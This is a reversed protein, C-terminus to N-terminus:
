AKLAALLITCAVGLILISAIYVCVATIARKSNTKLISRGCHYILLCAAILDCGWPLYEGLRVILATIIGTGLAVIGASKLMAGHTCQKRAALVYALYVLLFNLVVEGIFVITSHSAM